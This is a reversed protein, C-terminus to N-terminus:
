ARSSVLVSNHPPAVFGRRRYTGPGDSAARQLAGTMKILREMGSQILAKNNASSIRIGISYTALESMRQNITGAIRRPAFACVQRLTKQGFGRVQMARRAGAVRAYAVRTAELDREAAHIRAPTAAILATTLVLAGRQIEALAVSEDALTALFTEWSDAVRAQPIAAVAIV